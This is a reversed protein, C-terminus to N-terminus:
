PGPPITSVMQWAGGGDHTAYLAVAQANPDWLLIVWDRDSVAWGGYPIPGADTGGPPMPTWTRGGDATRLTGGRGEWAFGVGSPRMSIGTLYDSMGISGVGPSHGSVPPTASARVSWTRGGDTTEAVGKSAEGAGGMGACGVWGHVPSVFSVAVPWGIGACPEQGSPASWTRGGDDTAEVRGSQGTTVGSGPPGVSWGHRADTFSLGALKRDTVPHWTRGGDDNAVVGCTDGQWAQNACLVTAWASATGAVTVFALGSTDLVTETWTRGGDATRWVAGKGGPTAGVVLGSESDFFAVSSVSATPAVTPEPTPPAAPAAGLDAPGWTRGGDSSVFLEYSSGDSAVARLAAHSADAFGLWTIAGAPLGAVLIPQWTQGKDSTEELTGAAPGPRVWRVDSVVALAPSATTSVSGWSKGADDSRLIEFTGTGDNRDFLAVGTAGVFVPPGVFSGGQGSPQDIGPVAVDSWTQGADRSVAFIRREVPGADGASAAWITSADPTALLTGLWGDTGAIQWTLGGDDTKLLASTVTDFRGPTILLYGHDADLFRLAQLTGPYNGAIPADSWTRGGDTSRNVTLTLKDRSPDGSLGTGHDDATLAWVHTADLIDFAGGPLRGTTWSAGGDTSVYLTTGSVAWIGHPSFTGATSVQPAVTVPPASVAPASTVPAGSPASGTAAPGVTDRPGRGLLLVAGVVLVAAAAALGGPVMRKHARPTAAVAAVHAHLRAPIVAPERSRLWAALDRELEDPM